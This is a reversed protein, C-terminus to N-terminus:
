RIMLKETRLLPGSIATLFYMGPQLRSVDLTSRAQGNAASADLTREIVVRGLLDTVRLAATTVSMGSLAVELRDHAPNPSFALELAAPLTPDKISTPLKRAVRLGNGFSTVWIEQQDFPNFFIRQPHQFPYGAVQAFDPADASINSSFWLGDAETTLYCEDEVQPDIACSSVRDLDSIRSWHIGRDRSRYLGGLGNPAGGWGSYVCAYWTNQAADHPDIVLDRMWYRMGADSRDYWSAGADSSLFVGASATFAGSSNRRGSYNCVLSGDALLHIGFPHGETRPPSALKRWTSASGLNLDDCVYIGGLSSHVVAAYMRNPNAPDLELWAVPHVFDHLMQWATGGDGSMLIAGRGGDIRSDALYTSEYLDHVSSAAAYTKNQAASYRLCYVSNYTLGTFNKSWSQGADTSRFATIDTAGVFMRSADTWHIWWAATPEMGVGHYTRGKPTASEASNLDAADVYMARWSTGGDTTLHSFGLDTIIAVDPNNAAVDFGLAYEGFWWDNDGRYGSWGTLINANNETNFVPIWRRGADDTRYVIPYSSSSNGGALWAIDTNNQAMAVFFPHDDATLGSTSSVWAGGTGFDLRYVGAYSLHEAGTMGPWINGIDYTVCMMRKTSGYLAGTFSILGESEPIGTLPQLNFNAGGDLSVLLGRSLGVVITDGSWLVGGIYAAYGASNSFISTFSAGGDGSFFIQTYSSVILRDTRQPHAYVSYTEGFTPDAPLPAWTAGKDTSRGGRREDSYFDFVISYLINPDSTFEIRSDRVARFKQFPLVEWSAGSNMTHFLETMDCAVFAEANDHPSISPSFLAGGGGIGRSEWELPQAQLSSVAAMFLMSFIPFIAFVYGPRIRFSQIM